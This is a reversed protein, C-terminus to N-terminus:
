NTASAKIPDTVTIQCIKWGGLVTRRLDVNWTEEAKDVQMPHVGDQGPRFASAIRPHLLITASEGPQEVPLPPTIMRGDVAITWDVGSSFDIVIAVQYQRIRDWWPQFAAQPQNTGTCLQQNFATTDHDGSYFDYNPGGGCDAEVTRKGSPYFDQSSICSTATLAYMAAWPSRQGVLGFGNTYQWSLLAVAAGNLVLLLALASLYAVARRGRGPARLYWVTLWSTLVLVGASWGLYGPPFRDAFNWVLAVVYSLLYPAQTVIVVRRAPRTNYAWASTLAHGAVVLFAFLGVLFADGLHGSGYWRALGLIGVLAGAPCAALLVVAVTVARRGM